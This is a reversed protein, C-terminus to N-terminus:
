ASGGAQRLAALVREAIEHPTFPKTIFGNVQLDLARRVNERSPDATIMFLPILGVDSDSRLIQCLDLGNMSPLVLDVIALDPKHERIYRLAENADTFCTVELGRKGLGAEIADLIVPDDDVVVIEAARGLNHSFLLARLLVQMRRQDVPKVLYGDAKRNTLMSEGESSIFGTIVVVTLYSYKERIVDLLQWGNMNPMMLDTLVLDFSTQGLKGLAEQASAVGTVRYGDAQILECLTLRVDDEDDVVLIHFSSPEPAIREDETEDSM